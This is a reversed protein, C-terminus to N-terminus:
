QELAEIRTRLADNEAKLEQIAGVLRTIMENHSYAVTQYHPDGVEVGTVGADIDEHTYTADKEVNVLAPMQEQIEHAIFGVFDHAPKGFGARYKYKRPKLANIVELSGTLDRIDKKKRYDSNNSIALGGSDGQITGEAAGNTRYQILAVSGGSTQNNVLIIEAGYSNYNVDSFIRGTSGLLQIGTNTNYSYDDLTLTGGSTLQATETGGVEWRFGASASNFELSGGVGRVWNSTNNAARGTSGLVLRVQSAGQAVLYGNSEVSFMETTTGSAIRNVTFEDAQSDWTSFGGNYELDLVM